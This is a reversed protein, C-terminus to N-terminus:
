FLPGDTFYTRKFLVFVEEDVRTRIKFGSHCVLVLSTHKQDPGWIVDAQSLFGVKNCCEWHGTILM